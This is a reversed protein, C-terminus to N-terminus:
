ILWERYNDGTVMSALDMKERLAKIIKEEVTGSSVFDVYTVSKTQGGRHARDESQLRKELDFDNSYYVVTNAVIWTNGYGGSQANSVMFRCEPDNIFRDVDDQRTNTNGGHYQAVSEAGYEKSLAEVIKTIDRRFRSWIIIKGGAEEAVEMLAALRNSPIDVENGDDDTVHGCVIQQLRLLQVLVSQASVFSEADLMAIADEKLSKYARLQEPTLEVDRRTYIKPPLDMCEEKTVRYSLPAIQANLESLNRYNVIVTTKRSKAGEERLHKPTFDAQKTNAYRGRFSFFNRHGLCGAKVFQFQSFLDMPSRPSPSGTMIRRFAALPAVSLIYKTRAADHNKIFTSEDLYWACTHKKLFEQLYLRAKGATQVAETNMVLIRLGNGQTLGKELRRQNKKNGGGAEWVGIHATDLIRDPMHVELEGGRRVWNKYVGKPAMIVMGTIMLREFMASAEDIAVKTKGSGMEMLWAFGEKGWSRRIAERQHGWPETKFEYKTNEGNGM